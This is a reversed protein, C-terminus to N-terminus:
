LVERSLGGANLVRIPAGTTWALINEVAGAYATRLSRQSVFGTHPSLVTRPTSLLPHDHPLPEVDFVDLGAGAITGAHLAQVLADQEVIPGRSTNILYSSTGLRRLEDSGILGRSGDNLPVHLTLIRSRDLLEGFDVCTAQHTAARQPTLHPSWALVEMGFAQAINAVQSGLKGLGVIGLTSGALDMPVFQHWHGARTRRDEGCTDRAVALILAWTLEVTSTPVLDTGSVVIGLEAAAELDFSKNRMGTTILLKLQPLRELLSRPFPTRERMAVVIDYGDLRDVIEDANSLHDHYSTVPGVSSWDTVTLAVSQYDDIVAVRYGPDPSGSIM